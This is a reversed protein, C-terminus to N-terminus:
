RRPVPDGCQAASGRQRSSNKKNKYRAFPSLFPLLACLPPNPVSLACFVVVFPLRQTSAGGPPFLPVRSPVCQMEACAAIPRVQSARCSRPSRSLRPLRALPYQSQPRSECGLGHKDLSLTSKFRGSGTTSRASRDRRSGDPSATFISRTSGFAPGPLPLPAPPNHPSPPCSPAIRLPPLGCHTPQPPMHAQAKTCLSPPCPLAIGVFRARHEVRGRWWQPM